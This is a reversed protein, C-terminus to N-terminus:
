GDGAFPEQTSTTSKVKRRYEESGGFTKGRELNSIHILYIRICCGARSNSTPEAPTFSKVRASGTLEELTSTSSEVKRGYKENGVFTTEKELNCIEILYVRISCEARIDSPPEAPTFSKM